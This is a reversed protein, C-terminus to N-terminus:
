MGIDEISLTFNQRKNFELDNHGYVIIDLKKPQALASFSNCCTDLTGDTDFGKSQIDWWVMSENSMVTQAKHNFM